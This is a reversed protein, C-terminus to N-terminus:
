PFAVLYEFNSSEDIENLAVFSDLNCCVLLNEYVKYVWLSQFGSKFVNYIIEHVTITHHKTAFHPITNSELSILCAKFDITSLIFM